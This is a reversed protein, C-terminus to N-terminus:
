RDLTLRLVGEEVQWRLTDVCAGATEPLAVTTSYDGTVEITNNETDVLINLSETHQPILIAQEVRDAFTVWGNDWVADSNHGHSPNRSIHRRLASETMFARACGHCNLRSGTETRTNEINPMESMTDLEILYALNKTQM